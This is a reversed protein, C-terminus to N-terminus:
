GDYTVEILKGDKILKDLQEDAYSLLETAFAKAIKLEEVSINEKENKAFGFIFFAKESAKYAIISRAGGRKGHGELRIRQKYVTGGLDADILGREMEVIARNLLKDSLKVAKAWKGFLRTKFIRM